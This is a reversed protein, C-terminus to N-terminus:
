DRAKLWASPMLCLCGRATVDLQHRTDLGLGLGLGSMRPGMTQGLSLSVDRSRGGKGHNM